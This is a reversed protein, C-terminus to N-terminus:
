DIDIDEVMEDDDVDAMFVDGDDDEIDIDEPIEFDEDVISNSLIRETDEVIKSYLESAIVTNSKEDINVYPNLRVVPTPNKKPLGLINGITCMSANIKKREATSVSSSKTNIPDSEQEVVMSTNKPYLHDGSYEITTLYLKDKKITFIVKAKFYKDLIKNLAKPELPQNDARLEEKSVDLYAKTIRHTIKSMLYTEVEYTKNNYLTKVESSMMWNNFNEFIVGLLEILNFATVNIDSLKSITIPDFSSNLDNFHAIIKEMIYHLQHNGSHIIEGLLKQWLFKNDLESISVYEPFNDLIYYLNGLVYITKEDCRNADVLFNIRTREYNLKNLIYSNPRVGTSSIVVKSSPPADYVPEPVFGILRKMLETYGYQALLYHFVLSHAKTTNELKKAQNKYLETHIIPVRTYKNNVLITYFARNFNYKATVINIFIVSEGISVVKDALVPMALFKNDSLSIVNGKRIFPIYFSYKRIETENGYQFLFDVLYIDNEAIDVVVKSNKGMIRKVEETYPIERYSLYKLHTNTKSLASYRIYMDVYDVIHKFRHYTLGEVAKKNFKPTDNAIFEALTRM